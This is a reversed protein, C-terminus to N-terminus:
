ETELLNIMEQFRELSEAFKDLISDWLTTFNIPLREGFFTLAGARKHNVRQHVPPVNRLVRINEWVKIIREHDPAKKEELWREIIKISAWQPDINSVIKRLPKLNVEFISALSQIRESYDDQGECRTPLKAFFNPVTQNFVLADNFGVSKKFTENILQIGLVIREARLKRRTHEFGYLPGEKKSLKLFDEKFLLEFSLWLVYAFVERARKSDFPKKEIEQEIKRSIDCIPINKWLFTSIGGSHARQREFMRKKLGELEPFLDKIENLIEFVDEKMPPHNETAGVLLGAISEKREQLEAM